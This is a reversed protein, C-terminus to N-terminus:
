EEASETTPTNKLVQKVAEGTVTRDRVLMEAVAQIAPWHSELDERGWIIERGERDFLLGNDEEEALAWIYLEGDGVGGQGHLNTMWAREVYDEFLKGDNVGDLTPLPWQSRAEAWVGAYIVFSGYMENVTIRTLGLTEDTPEISVSDIEGGRMLAAIAHGAEHCANIYLKQADDGADDTV